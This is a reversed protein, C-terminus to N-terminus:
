RIGDTRCLEADLNKVLVAKYYEPSFGGIFVEYRLDSGKQLSTLAKEARSRQLIDAAPLSALRYGAPWFAENRGLAIKYYFEAESFIGQLFYYEGRLFACVPSDDLKEMYELVSDADFYDGKKFLLVLLAALASGDPADPPSESAAASLEASIGRFVEAANALADKRALFDDIKSLDFHLKTNQPASPAADPSDPVGATHIASLPEEDGAGNELGRSKKFYFVGSHQKGILDPHRVGATEAIGLFLSGNERLVSSLNSLIRIRNRSSFYIFANRFFIIDYTKPPVAHMINHVFFKINNKLAFDVRYEEGSQLLYPYAMPHFCSGDNRLARATYIGQKATEIMKPDIDFADISYALPTEAGKNYSEILMAVSYAECGSSVAACCIQVGTKEFSPLLSELFAFHAPERFFYTENITLFSAAEGSAFVRDLIEPGEGGYTDWLYTRLKQIDHLDAKIGFSEEARHILEKM